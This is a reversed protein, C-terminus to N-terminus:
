LSSWGSSEWACSGRRRRFGRLRQHLLLHQHHAFLKQVFDIIKTWDAWLPGLCLTVLGVNKVIGFGLIKRIYIKWVLKKNAVFKSLVEM